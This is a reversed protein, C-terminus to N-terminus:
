SDPRLQTTKRVPPHGSLLSCRQVGALPLIVWILQYSSIGKILMGVPYSVIDSSMEPPSSSVDSLYSTFLAALYRFVVFVAVGLGPFTVWASLGNSSLDVFGSFLWPFLILFYDNGDLQM